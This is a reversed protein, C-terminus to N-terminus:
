GDGTLYWDEANWLPGWQTPNTEVGGINDRWVFIDPKQYLPLIPLDSAMLADAENYVAAREEPDVISNTSNILRTVEENCYSQENLGGDCTVISNGGFPDPSGSWAFLLMDWGGDAGEFITTGFLTGSEENAIEMAIGVEALQQQIVEVTLERLANGSTTAIRFELREGDCSYVGDDGETCGNDELLQRAREPDYTYSQFHEEYEPQNSVYILNNLVSAEPYLPAIFRQAIAERDIGYAIARRVFPQDLGPVAFNFDLHEWNIGGVVESQVGDVAEIQDLLNVQAQPNITDIEGGDLAQIQTNSDTIFQVVIEDLYAAHEGWYNENRKLTLRQGQEWSDFEFPGSALAIEDNWVENIDEGDLEHAPLVWDFLTKYPAFPEEFTATYTKEDVEEDTILDYGDRASIDFDPDTYVATTFAFDEGTVPEGDSWEAEDKITWTYTLGDESVEVEDALLDPVYSFDPAVDYASALVTRLIIANALQNGEATVPMLVAPEQEAGFTVTGGETPEDTPAVETAAASSAADSPAADEGGAGTEGSGGGGCAAAFVSMATLLLLWRAAAGGRVTRMSAM